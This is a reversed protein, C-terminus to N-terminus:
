ACNCTCEFVPCSACPRLTIIFNKNGTSVGALEIRGAPNEPLSALEAPLLAALYDENKWARVIDTSSM